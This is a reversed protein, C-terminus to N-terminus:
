GARQGFAFGTPKSEQAPQEVPAPEEPASESEQKQAPAAVVDSQPAAASNATTDVGAVQRAGLFNRAVAEAAHQTSRKVKLQIPGPQTEMLADFEKADDGSLKLVGREFQFRGLKFRATPHSTYIVVEEM